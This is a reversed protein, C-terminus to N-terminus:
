LFVIATSLAKDKASSNGTNSTDNNLGLSPSTLFHQGRFWRRLESSNLQTELSSKLRLSAELKDRSGSETNSSAEDLLAEASVSFLLKSTLSPDM